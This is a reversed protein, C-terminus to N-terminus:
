PIDPVWRFGLLLWLFFRKVRTPRKQVIIFIKSGKGFELYGDGNPHGIEFM